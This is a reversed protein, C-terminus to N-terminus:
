PGCNYQKLEKSLAKAGGTLGDLFRWFEAGHNMHVTHALEHLLVYDILYDPLKMLYISLNINGKASCSGWRSTINKIRYSNYPLNHQQSLVALRHPLIEKAEIRYIEAIVLLLTEKFGDTDTNLEQPHNLVVNTGEIKVTINDTDTPMTTIQHYRTKYGSAIPQFGLRQNNKELSEKIWHAKSKVFLKVKSIPVAVPFTVVVQNSPKVAISIRRSRRSRNLSIEGIEDLQWRITTNRKLTSM